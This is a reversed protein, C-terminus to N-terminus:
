RIRQLMFNGAQVTFASGSGGDDSHVRLDVEANNPLRGIAFSGIHGVDGGTGLKRGSKSKVIESDNVFIALTYTDNATGTFSLSYQSEFVGAVNVTIANSAITCNKTDGVTDFQTIKVYATGIGTQEPGAVNASAEAYAVAQDLLTPIRDINIPHNRAFHDKIEQQDAEDYDNEPAYTVRAQGVGSINVRAKLQDPTKPVWSDLVAEREAPPLPQNVGNEDEASLYVGELRADDMRDLEALQPATFKAREPATLAM